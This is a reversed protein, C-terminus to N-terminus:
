GAAERSTHFAQLLANLTDLLPKPSPSSLVLLLDALRPMLANTITEYVDGPIGQEDDWGGDLLHQFISYLTFPVVGPEAAFWGNCM